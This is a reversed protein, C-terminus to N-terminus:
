HTEQIAANASDFAPEAITQSAAATPEQASASQEGVASSTPVDSSLPVGAASDLDASASAATSAPGASSSATETGASTAESALMASKTEADAGSVAASHQNPSASSLSSAAEDAHVLPQDSILGYGFTFGLVVSALGTNLKRLSFSHDGNWKIILCKGIIRQYCTKGRAKKVAVGVNCLCNFSWHLCNDILQIKRKDIYLLIRLIGSEKM